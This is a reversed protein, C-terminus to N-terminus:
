DFRGTNIHKAGKVVANGAVKADGCVRTNGYVKSTGAVLAAGYVQASGFVSADCFVKATGYVKANEFLRANDQVEANGFVMANDAVWCLGSQDLNKKSQVFGGLDGAKVDGFDKLAKIRHLKRGSYNLTENTLEYKTEAAKLRQAALIKM